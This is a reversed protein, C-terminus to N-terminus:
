SNSNDTHTLREYALANYVRMRVENVRGQPEHEKVSHGPSFTLQKSKEQREKTDINQKPFTITGVRHFQTKWTVTSDDIPETELNDSFQVRLAFAIEEQPDSLDKKLRERLYNRSPNKPLVNTITKLPLAQWKIPKGSGFSYATGSYYVEELVSPTRIRAHLFNLAAKTQLLFIPIAGVIKQIINGAAVKVGSMQLAVLGPTFTPHNLLIIDQTKGEPDVYDDLFKFGEVDLIKIAMGRASKKIDPKDDPSGNTFRVWAEYSKEERFLGQKLFQPLNKEIELTAKALGITKKHFIREPRKDKYKKKLKKRLFRLIKNSISDVEKSDIKAMPCGVAFEQEILDKHKLEM